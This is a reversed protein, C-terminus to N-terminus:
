AAALVGGPDPPVPTLLGLEAIVDLSFLVFHLDLGTEQAIDQERLDAGLPLGDLYFLLAKFEPSLAQRALSRFGTGGANLETLIPDLDIM